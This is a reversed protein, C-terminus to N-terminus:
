NKLTGMPRLRVVPHIVQHESLCEMLRDVVESSFLATEERRLVRGGRGRTMRIRSARGGAPELRGMRRWTEILHGAGHDYSHLEMPGRLAGVGLYSPVDHAGAVIAPEGSARRCANHRAVWATSEDWPEEVIGNHSVDWLLRAHIRPSVTERLADRIAAVTALRYAFGFNSAAALAQRLLLGEESDPEYISWGNNRFHLSWKRLASGRRGGRGYHLLLRSLLFLPARSPPLERRRTFHHLLTAGFPGPGLHYMVGIQGPSLDWRAATAPDLVRDVAQVELFHNGGFNLGMESRCLRSSLLPHSAVSRWLEPGRPVPISGGGEMRELTGPDLGYRDAGARGGELVVRGLEDASLSYRNVDLLHAASNSNIRSFFREVWRPTMERAELDTMVLGMGDNVAVSTFEPVIAGRTTIALSSPTESRNKQHLDPLALVSEVFPLEAIEGLRPGISGDPEGGARLVTLKERPGSTSRAVSMLTATV